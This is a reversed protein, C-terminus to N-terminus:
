AAPQTTQANNQDAYEGLGYAQMVYDAIFHGEGEITMDLDGKEYEQITGGTLIECALMLKDEIGTLAGLKVNIRNDYLFSVSAESFEITDASLQKNKLISVIQAAISLKDPESFEIMMGPDAAGVIDLGYIKVLGAGQAEETVYGLSKGESSIIIKGQAATEIVGIPVAAEVEVTITSPLSRKIVCNGVYPLEQEIKKAAGDTDALFLSEDIHIDLHAAIEERTYIVDDAISISITSVKFFVTVSLLIVIGIIVLFIAAYALGTMLKRHKMYYKRRRAAAEEKKERERARARREADARREAERIKDARSKSSSNKKQTNVNSRNASPKRNQNSTRGSSASKSRSQSSSNKKRNKANKDAM